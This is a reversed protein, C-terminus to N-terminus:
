LSVCPPLKFYRPDVSSSTVDLPSGGLYSCSWVYTLSTRMSAGPCAAVSAAAFVSLQAPALMAYSAGSTMVLNPIAGLAVNVSLADSTLAFGLFNTLSLVFSYTHGRQLYPTNPINLVAESGVMWPKDGISMNMAFSRVLTLNKDPLSGNVTWVATQWGRGGSGTSSTADITLDSCSGVQGPAVFLAVPMLPNDPVLLPTSSANATPWCSCDHYTCAPSLRGELATITDGPVCTARYDLTAQAVVVGSVAHTLKRRCISLFM